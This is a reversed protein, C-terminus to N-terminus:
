ENSGDIQNLLSLAAEAKTEARVLSATEELYPTIIEVFEDEWEKIVETDGYPLDYGSRGDVDRMLKQALERSKKKLEELTQPNM